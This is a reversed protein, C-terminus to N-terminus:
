KKNAIYKQRVSYMYFSSKKLYVINIYRHDGPSGAEYVSRKSIWGVVSLM